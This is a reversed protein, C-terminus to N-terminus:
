EFASADWDAPNIGDELFFTRLLQTAAFRQNFPALVLNREAELWHEFVTVDLLAQIHKLRGFEELSEPTGDSVELLENIKETPTGTAQHLAEININQAAVKYGRLYEQFTTDGHPNITGDRIDEIIQRAIEQEEQSLTAYATRVEDLLRQQEDDSAQSSALARRYKEFKADLYEFDIRTTQNVVALTTLDLPIDGDDSDEDHEGGLEAYRAMLAKYATQTITVDVDEQDPIEPFEYHSQG